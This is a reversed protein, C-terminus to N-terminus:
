RRPRGAAERCCGGGPWGPGRQVVPAPREPAGALLRAVAQNGARRQLATLQQAMAPGTLGAFDQDDPLARRRAAASSSRPEHMGVPHGSMAEGRRRVSLSGTAAYAACRHIAAQGFPSVMPRVPGGRRWEAATVGVGRGSSPGRLRPLQRPTRTRTLRGLAGPGLPGGRDAVETGGQGPHQPRPERGDARVPVAPDAIERNSLAQGVLEAVERERTTLPDIVRTQTQADALASEAAQVQGPM